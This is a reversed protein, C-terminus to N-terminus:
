CLGYIKLGFFTAKQKQCRSRKASIKTKNLNKSQRAKRGNGNALNILGTQSHRATSFFFSVLVRASTVLVAAHHSFFFPPV